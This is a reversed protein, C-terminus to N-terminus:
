GHGGLRKEYTQKADHLQKLEHNCQYIRDEVEKLSKELRYKISEQEQGNLFKQYDEYQSKSIIGAEKCQYADIELGGDEIYVNYVEFYDDYRCSFKTFTFDKFLIVYSGSDEYMSLVTRDDVNEAFTWVPLDIGRLKAWDALTEEYM